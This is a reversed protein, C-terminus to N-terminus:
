TIISLFGNKSQPLLSRSGQVLSRLFLMHRKADSLDNFKYMNFYNNAVLTSLFDINRFIHVNSLTVCLKWYM